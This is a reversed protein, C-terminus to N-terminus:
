PKHARRSNEFPDWEDGTILDYKEGFWDVFEAPSQGSKWYRIIQEPDAGADSMDICFEGM